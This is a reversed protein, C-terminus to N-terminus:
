ARKGDAIRQTLRQGAKRVEGPTIIRHIKLMVIADAFAQWTAIDADNFGLGKLQKALKPALAGLEIEITM